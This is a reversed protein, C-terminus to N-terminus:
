QNRRVLHVLSSLTQLRHSQSTEDCLFLPLFLCPLQQFAMELHSCHSWLLSSNFSFSFSQPAQSTTVSTQQRQSDRTCSDRFLRNLLLFDRARANFTDKDNTCSFLSMTDFPRVRKSCQIYVHFVSWKKKKRESYFCFTYSGWVCTYIIM